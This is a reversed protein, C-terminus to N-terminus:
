YPCDGADGAAPRQQRLSQPEQAPQRTGLRLRGSPRQRHDLRRRLGRLAARSVYIQMGDVRYDTMGGAKLVEQATKLEDASFRKGALIAAEDPVAGRYVLFGLGVAVLAVITLLSVRQSAPLEQLFKTLPELSRRVFNM